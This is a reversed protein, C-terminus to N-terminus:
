CRGELRGWPRFFVRFIANQGGVSHSRGFRVGLVDNSWESAVM